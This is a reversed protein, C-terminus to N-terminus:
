AGKGMWRDLVGAPTDQPPPTLLISDVDIPYADWENRKASLGRADISQRRRIYFSIKCAALSNWSYGPWLRSAIGWNIIVTIHCQLEPWPILNIEKDRISRFQVGSKEATTEKVSRHSYVTTDTIGGGAAVVTTLRVIRIMRRIQRHDDMPAYNPKRMFTILVHTKEALGM